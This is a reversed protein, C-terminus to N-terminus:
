DRRSGGSAVFHILLLVCCLGLGSGIATLLYDSVNEPTLYIPM